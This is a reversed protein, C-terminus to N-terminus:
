KQLAFWQVNFISAFIKKGIVLLFYLEFILTVIYLSIQFLFKRSAQDSLPFDPFFTKKYM